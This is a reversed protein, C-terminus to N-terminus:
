VIPPRDIFPFPRAPKQSSLHTATNVISVVQVHLLTTILSHHSGHCHYCEDCQETDHNDTAFASHDSQTQPSEELSNCHPDFAWEASTSDTFETVGEAGLWASQLLM